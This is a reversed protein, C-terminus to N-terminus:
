CAGPNQPASTRSSSRTRARRAAAHREDARDGTGDPATPAAAAPTAPPATGRTPAPTPADTSPPPATADSSTPRRPPRRRPRRTPTPPRRPALAERPARPRDARGPRGPGGPRRGRQRRLRRRRARASPPWSRRPARRARMRGGRLPAARGDPPRVDPLRQPGEPRAPRVLQLLAPERRGMAPQVEVPAAAAGERRGRAARGHRPRTYVKGPEAALLVERGSSPARLRYLQRESMAASVRAAPGAAHRLSDRRTRTRM